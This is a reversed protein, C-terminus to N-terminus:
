VVVQKRKRYFRIGRPLTKRSKDVRQNRVNMRFLPNFIHFNREFVATIRNFNHRHMLALAQLERNDANGVAAIRSLRFLFFAQDKQM